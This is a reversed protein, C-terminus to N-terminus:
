FKPHPNARFLALHRKTNKIWELRWATIPSM